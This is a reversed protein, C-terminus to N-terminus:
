VKKEPIFSLGSRILGIIKHKQSNLDAITKESISKQLNIMAFLADNVSICQSILNTTIDRRWDPRFQNLIIILENTKEFSNLISNLLLETQVPDISKKFQNEGSGFLSFIENLIDEFSSFYTYSNDIERKRITNEEIKNIIRNINQRFILLSSRLRNIKENFSIDYIESLIVDQKISILKSTVFALLMLGFIAQLISIIKFYGKPHIDGYGISTGTVFSFYIYDTFKEVNVGTASYVIYGNETSSFFYLLGFTLVIIAWISFIRLFTLRDILTGIKKKTFKDLLENLPIFKKM